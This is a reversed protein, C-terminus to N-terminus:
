LAAIRWHDRGQDRHHPYVCAFTGSRVKACTGLVAGHHREFSCTDGEDKGKCAAISEPRPSGHERATPGTTLLGWRECPSWRSLFLVWTHTLMFEELVIAFLLALSQKRGVYGVLQIQRVVLPGDANETPV